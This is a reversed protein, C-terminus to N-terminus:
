RPLCVKRSADYQRGAAECDAKPNVRLTKGAMVRLGVLALAALTIVAVLVKIARDLRQLPDM